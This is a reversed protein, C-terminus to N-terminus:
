SEEYRKLFSECVNMCLHLPSGDLTGYAIWVSALMGIVIGKSVIQPENNFRWLVIARGEPGRSSWPPLKNSIDPCVANIQGDGDVM